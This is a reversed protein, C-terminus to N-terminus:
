TKIMEDSRDSTDIGQTKFYNSKNTEKLPRLFIQSNALLNFKISCDIPDFPSSNSLIAEMKSVYDTKSLIEVGQKSTCAKNQDAGYFFVISSMSEFYCDQLLSPQRRNSSMRTEELCNIM